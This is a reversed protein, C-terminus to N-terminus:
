EPPLVREVYDVVIHLDGDLLVMHRGIFRYQLNDPLQPLRALLLPPITTLPADAPLPQNLHLPVDPVEELAARRARPERTKLDAAVANRIQSAIEDSVLDGRKADHRAQQIASALVKQRTALETADATTKLPELKRSLTKRLDLYAALREDFTKLAAKQFAAATHTSPLPPDATTQRDGQAHAAAVSLIAVLASAGITRATMM